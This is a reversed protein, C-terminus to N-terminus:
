VIAWNGGTQIAVTVGTNIGIPGVSMANYQSTITYDTTIGQVNQLFPTVDLAFPGSFTSADNFTSTGNFTADGSFTSNGSFTSVGTFTSNGSFTSVGSFTSNSSFNSSGNFTVSGAATGVGLNGLSSYIEDVRLKSTM